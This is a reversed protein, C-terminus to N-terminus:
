SLTDKRTTVFKSIKFLVSKTQQEEKYVERFYTSSVYNGSRLAKSQIWEKSKSKLYDLPYKIFALSCALAISQDPISNKQSEFIHLFELTLFLYMM